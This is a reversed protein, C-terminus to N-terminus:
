LVKWRYQLCCHRHRRNGDKFWNCLSYDYLLEAFVDFEKNTPTGVFDLSKTPHNTIFDFIHMRVCLAKAHM